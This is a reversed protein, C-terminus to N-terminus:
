PERRTTSHSSHETFRTPTDMGVMMTWHRERSLIDDETYSLTKTEKPEEPKQWTRGEHAKRGWRKCNDRRSAQEETGSPNKKGDVTKLTGIESLTGMEAENPLM